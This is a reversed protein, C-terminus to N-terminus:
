LSCQVQGNDYKYTFHLEESDDFNRYTVVYYTEQPNPQYASKFVWPNPTFKAAVRKEIDGWFVCETQFEEISPYNRPM